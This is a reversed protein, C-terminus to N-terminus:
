LRSNKWRKKRSVIVDRGGNIEIKKTARCVM